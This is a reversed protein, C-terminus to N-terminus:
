RCLARLTAVGARLEPRVLPALLGLASLRGTSTAHAVQLGDRPPELVAEPSNYRHINNAINRVAGQSLSFVRATLRVLLVVSAYVDVYAQSM